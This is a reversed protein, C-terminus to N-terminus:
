LLFIERFPWIKFVEGKTFNNQELPLEMFADSDLLNAFDGSSNGEVPTAMLNGGNNINLKVQLFYQLSASFSFDKGLIAYKNQNSSLGMCAKLWPLVYRYLCMFTSVPNGPLAFVLVGNKHIGFWFPKGPRQQVKHFLKEVSLEKLAQPVYDFKGMSVGGSLIIVDYSQLCDKLKRKTIELDDPIHVMDACLNYQELAAKITYSNSRRIQYPSPTEDVEVLENGSSIVVVRPLKKVLLKTKGISAAINIIVPTIPQNATALIENKKKDKAKAHIGQGKNIATSTITVNQNHLDLDEYGIVTDTTDPVAAGTMIEICEDTANIEVPIDGAAQTARINFSRIGKEFSRFNIAIGDLTARNFPPMDRDAILVEALVRRISTEFPISETGFDKIQSLIIKEAEEVLIM